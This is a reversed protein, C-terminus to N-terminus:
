TVIFKIITITTHKVNYAMKVGLSKVFKPPINTPTIEGKM